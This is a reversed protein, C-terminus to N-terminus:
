TGSCHPPTAAFAFYMKEVLMDKKVYVYVCVYIYIYIYIYTYIYIYVLENDDSTDSPIESRRFHNPVKILYEKDLTHRFDLWYEYDGSM